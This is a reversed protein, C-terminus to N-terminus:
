AKPLCPIDESLKLATLTFNEVALLDSDSHKEELSEVRCVM